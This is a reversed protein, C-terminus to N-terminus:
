YIIVSPFLIYVSSLNFLTLSHSSCYFHMFVFYYYLFGVFIIFYTLTILSFSFCLPASFSVYFWSMHFPARPWCIFIGSLLSSYLFVPICSYGAACVFPVNLKQLIARFFMLGVPLSMVEEKGLINPKGLKHSLIIQM